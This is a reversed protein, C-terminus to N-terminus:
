IKSRSSYSFPSRQSIPFLSHFAMSFRLPGFLFLTLPSLPSMANERKRSLLSLVPGRFTMSTLDHCVELARPREMVSHQILSHITLSPSCLPEHHPALTFAPPPAPLFHNAGFSGYSMAHSRLPLPLTSPSRCPLARHCAGLFGREGCSQDLWLLADTDRRAGVMHSMTSCAPTIFTPRITDARLSANLSPPHPSSPLLSDLHPM